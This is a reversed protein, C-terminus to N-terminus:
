LRSAYGARRAAGWRAARRDARSASSFWATEGRNIAKQARYALLVFPLALLDTPDTVARFRHAPVLHTLIALHAHTAPAYTKVLVFYTAALLCAFTAHPTIPRRLLVQAWELAAAIVLPLLICLGVDSLKGSVFGPHQRKLWLDNGAILAISGLALPSLLVAGPTERLM